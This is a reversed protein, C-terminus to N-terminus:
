PVIAFRRVLTRDGTRLFAFYLGARAHIAQPTFEVEHAGAGLALDALVAVKRGQIDCVEIKVRGPTALQFRLRGRDRVPDPSM